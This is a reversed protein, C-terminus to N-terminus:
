HERLLRGFGPIPESVKSHRFADWIVALSTSVVNLGLEHELSDINALTGWHGAQFFITDAEPHERAVDRALKASVELPIRPFEIPAYGEARLTFVHYGARELYDRPQGGPDIIAVNKAGLAGLARLQAMISTSIGVGCEKEMTAVFDDMHDLGVSLNVPVGGIVIFDVGAKAMERVARQSLLFAQQLETPTADSVGLTTIALTVGAPAIQYFEYLFTETILPPSAYGIRARCGYISM